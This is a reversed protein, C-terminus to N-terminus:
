YHNLEIWDWSIRTLGSIRHNSKDKIHILFLGTLNMLNKQETSNTIRQDRHKEPPM